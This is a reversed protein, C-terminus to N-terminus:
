LYLWKLYEKIVRQESYKAIITEHLSAGLKRRLNPNDILSCLAMFFSDVDESKILMGNFNHEIVSSIEGVDTALVAKRFYGYELISVPLGESKSTLIAIESQVLVHKIDKVSDYMFVDNDLKNIKILHKIEASYDDQFDKGVLHFSWDPRQSRILLALAILMRHNKQERLNALCIIRRKPSGKLFTEEISNAEFPVFNNLHIVKSCNLKKDAWVKLTTNVSIIGDFFISLLKLFLFRRHELFESNGYHDHWIIKLKPLTLKILVAWFFSSSHAHIHSIKHIVCFKRLKFLAVFDISSKKSLFKYTVNSNLDEKLNGENRTAILASFSIQSSLANAYNVAMREAGGAELSDILQLIRM